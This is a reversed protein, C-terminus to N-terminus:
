HLGSVSVFLFICNFKVGDSNISTGYLVHFLRSLFDIAGM